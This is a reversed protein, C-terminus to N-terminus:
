LLKEGLLPNFVWVTQDIAEDDLVVVQSWRGLTQMELVTQGQLLQAVIKENVSPGKRANLKKAKVQRKIGFSSAFRGVISHMRGRIERDNRLMMSQLMPAADEHGSEMALLYYDIAKEPDRAVKGEGMGYLMGISFRADAHGQSSAKQWWELALIDNVRLGYGNLYMWGINYQADPDGYEALPHMICYAVAFDGSRMAKVAEELGRANAVSSFILLVAIFLKSKM